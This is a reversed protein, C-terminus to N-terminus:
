NSLSRRSLCRKESKYLNERVLTAAPPPISLEQIGGGAAVSTRRFQKRDPLFLASHLFLPNPSFSGNIALGM